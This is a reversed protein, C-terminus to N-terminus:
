IFWWTPFPKLFLSLRGLSALFDAPQVLSIGAATGPRGCDVKRHLSLCSELILDDNSAKETLEARFSLSPLLSGQTTLARFSRCHSSFEESVYALAARCCSPAPDPVGPSKRIYKSQERVLLGETM